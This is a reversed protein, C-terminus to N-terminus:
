QEKRILIRGEVIDLWQGRRSIWRHLLKHCNACLLAMESLRTKREPAMAVPVIHHAEFIADEISEDSIPSSTDCLECQLKGKARKKAILRRRIQRNRERRRHIATLLAGELFEEDEDASVDIMEKAAVIGARISTALSKVRAPMNGYVAWIERDTRSVNPLGKGIAQQRLNQLKFTVGAPNRFSPKRSALAHHPMARLLKSLNHVRPDDESPIRGDCEFYLDLALITEDRGWDPNGHGKTRAM